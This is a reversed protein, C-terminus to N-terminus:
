VAETGSEEIIKWGRENSFSALSSIKLYDDTGKAIKVTPKKM